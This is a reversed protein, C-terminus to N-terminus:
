YKGVGQYFQSLLNSMETVHTVPALHGARPIVFQECDPLTAALEASNEKSVIFDRTGSIVLTPVQVCATKDTLSFRRILRLRHAMVSQDTQWCANTVLEFQDPSPKQGFLLNFFQNVFRCDKPLPYNSLVMGAIRHLMGSEFRMGVGQAGVSSYLRPYKAASALAIVGGFSCGFVAPCELGRLFVFEALDTALDTLDFRRRLAFCDAEGRTQYCIVRFHQGLEHILPELLDIGGALGPVVVLPPGEGWEVFEANYHKLDVVGRIFHNPRHSAGSMRLWRQTVIM